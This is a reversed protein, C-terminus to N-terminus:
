NDPRECTITGSYMYNNNRKAGPALVFTGFVWRPDQAKCWSTASLSAAARCREVHKGIQDVWNEISCGYIRIIQNPFVQTITAPTPDTGLKELTEKLSKVQIQLAAVDDRQADVEAELHALKSKLENHEHSQPPHPHRTCASAILCFVGVLVLRSYTLADKM